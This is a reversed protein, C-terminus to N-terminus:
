FPVPEGKNAEFMERQVRARDAWWNRATATIASHAMFWTNPNVGEPCMPVAEPEELALGQKDIASEYVLEGTEEDKYQSLGKDPTRAIFTSEGIVREGKSADLERRGQSPDDFDVPVTVNNGEADQVPTEAPVVTQTGTHEPSQSLLADQSEAASTSYETRAKCAEQQPTLKRPTEPVTPVFNALAERAISEANEESVDPVSIWVKGREFGILDADALTELSPFANEGLEDSMEQVTVPSEESQDFSALTCFVTVLKESDIETTEVKARKAM